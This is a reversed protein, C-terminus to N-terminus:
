REGSEESDVTSEMETFEDETSSHDSVEDEGERGPPSLRLRLREGLSLQGLQHIGGELENVQQQILHLSSRHQQKRGSHVEWLRQLPLWADQRLQRGHDLQREAGENLLELARGQTLRWRRAFRAAQWRAAIPLWCAGAIFLGALLLLAYLPAEPRWEALLARSVFTGLALLICTLQLASVGNLLWQAKELLLPEEARRTEEALRRLALRTEELASRDYRSPAALNGVMQSRAEEPLQALAREAAELLDGVDQWDRAELRGALKEAADQWDESAQLLDEPLLNRDSKGRRALWGLGLLELLGRAVLRPIKRWAFSAHWGEAVAEQVVRGTTILNQRAAELALNASTHAAAVQGELNVVTRGLEDWHVQNAEFITQAERNARQVIQLPTSMKQQLRAQDGLQEEIADLFGGM